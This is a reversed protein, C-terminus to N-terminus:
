DRLEDHAKQAAQLAEDRDHVIARLTEIKRGTSSLAEDRARITVKLM